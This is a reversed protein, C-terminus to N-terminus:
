WRSSRDTPPAKLYMGPNEGAWDVPRPNMAPRTM